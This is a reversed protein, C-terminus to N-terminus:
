STRLCFVKIGENLGHLGRVPVGENVQRLFQVAERAAHEIPASGDVVGVPLVGDEGSMDKM